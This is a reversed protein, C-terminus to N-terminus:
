RPARTLRVGEVGEAVEGAIRARTLAALLAAADLRTAEALEGVRVPRPWRRGLEASVAPPLVSVTASSDPPEESPVGLGVASLVDAPRTCPAAGEVLLQHPAASGPARVDGPVALVPIGRDAAVAATRLSGSRAGGEVVVVADSLGAVLRNRALVHSPSAPADPPLEALLWGGGALIRDFLGGPGAHPVPYAVGHGCGLVAVTAGGAALAARHAAGDIGVAGGSVVVVGAEAVSEALWAAIAAGYASARRAGVIAVAPRDPLGHSEGRWAVLPPGGTGPWGAALRRPYAPEGVLAAHVDLQAWRRAAQEAVASASPTPTSALAALLQRVRATSGVHGTLPLVSDRAAAERALTRPDGRPAVLRTVVRRLLVLDTGPAAVRMWVADVPSQGQPDVGTM